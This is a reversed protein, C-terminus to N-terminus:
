ILTESKNRSSLALSCLNKLFWILEVGGGAQYKHM